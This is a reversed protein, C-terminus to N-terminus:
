FYFIKEKKERVQYFGCVAIGAPKQEIRFATTFSFLAVFSDFAQTVLYICYEKVICFKERGNKKTGDARLSSKWGQGNQENKKIESVYNQTAFAM